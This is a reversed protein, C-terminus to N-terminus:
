NLDAGSASKHLDTMKKLRWWGGDPAFWSQAGNPFEVVRFEGEKRFRLRSSDRSYLLTSDVTGGLSHRAGGASEYVWGAGGDIRPDFPGYLQGLSFTWGLGANSTQNPSAKTVPCPEPLGDDCTNGPSDSVYVTDFEWFTSNYIVNFSYALAPSVRYTQGIPVTLTLNGNFPSVHDIGSSVTPANPGSPRAHNPHTQAELVTSTALAFAVFALRKL